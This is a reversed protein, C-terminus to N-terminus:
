HQGKGNILSHWKDSGSEVENNLLSNCVTSGPDVQAQFLHHIFEEMKTNGKKDKLATGRPWLTINAIYSLGQKSGRIRM